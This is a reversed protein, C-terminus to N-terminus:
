LRLEDGDLPAFAQAIAVPDVRDLSSPNWRPAGDKDLIVARVGEYFDHGDMCNRALRYEMRMCDEFSLSAGERLQRFALRLSTPSKRALERLTRDSWETGDERLRALVEELDGASFCRDISQRCGALRSEGPHSAFPRLRAEVEEIAQNRKGQWVMGDLSSLATGSQGTAVHVQAIGSYICDSAGLRMGTLGLYMGVSGPLRPLFYSGGVDPFLGIGTEPMAFVTGPGAIRLSGHVSLGVGGGM